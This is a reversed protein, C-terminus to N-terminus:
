DLGSGFLLFSGTCGTMDWILRCSSTEERGGSLLCTARCHAPLNVVVAKKSVFGSGPASKCLDNVQLM